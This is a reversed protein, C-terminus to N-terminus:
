NRGSYIGSGGNEILITNKDYDTKIRNENRNKM